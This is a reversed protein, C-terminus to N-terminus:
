RNRWIEWAEDFPLSNLIGMNKDEEGSLAEVYRAVLEPTPKDGTCHVTGEDYKVVLVDKKLARKLLKMDLFDNVLNNVFLDDTPTIFKDPIDVFGGKEQDWEFDPIKTTKLFAYFDNEVERNTWDYEICGGFGGDHINAVKTKGCYFSANYGGGDPTDFTKVNKVSYTM